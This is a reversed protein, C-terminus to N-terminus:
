CTDMAGYHLEGATMNTWLDQFLQQGEPDELGQQAEPEGMAGGMSDLGPPEYLAADWVPFYMELSGDLVPCGIAGPSPGTQGSTGTGTDTSTRAYELAMVQRRHKERVIGMIIRSASLVDVKTSAPTLDSGQHSIHALFEDLKLEARAWVPDYVPSAAIQFSLRLGLITAHIPRSWDVVTFCAFESEHISMIERYLIALGSVCEHLRSHTDPLHNWKDTETPLPRQLKLATGGDLCIKTFLMQLRVSVSSNVTIPLVSELRLVESRFGALMIKLEDNGDGDYGNIIKAAQYSVGTIRALAALTRDDESQGYRELLECCKTTWPTYALDLSRRRRRTALGWTNALTAALYFYGLYSRISILQDETLAPSDSWLGPLHQEQDLELEHVIDTAMQIYQFAQREKPRLHFPYWACYILLGQLMELSRDGGAVFKLGLVKRFEEDYLGHGQLTKSGSAASLIALLVFPKSAALDKVSADPPLAMFPFFKLLSHFHALLSEASALNFLPKTRFDHLSQSQTSSSTPTQISRISDLFPSMESTGPDEPFLKDLMQGHSERLTEFHNDVEPQSPVAFDISLTSSPGPPVAQTQELQESPCSYKRPRRPRPISRSVCERKSDLCKKCVGPQDSPQCRIKTARCAECATAVRKRPPSGAAFSSDLDM